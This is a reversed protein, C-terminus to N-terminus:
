SAPRGIDFLNGQPDALTTWVAGYEDFDGVHKAGLGVAREVEAAVAATHLDLHIRNKGPTPDPVKIFMLVPRDGTQKGVTAFHVSAGPDIPRELLAAYFGALEAANECDMTVNGIALQTM